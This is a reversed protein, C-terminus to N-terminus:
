KKFEQVMLRGITYTVTRSAQGVQATIKYPGNTNTQPFRHVTTVTYPVFGLSPLEAFVTRFPIDSNNGAGDSVVLIIHLDQTPDTFQGSFTVIVESSGPEDITINTTHLVTLSQDITLNPNSQVTAFNTVAGGRLNITDVALADIQANGVALDAIKASTIAANAIFATGIIAGDIFTSINAANLDDIFAFAGAGLADLTPSGVSPIGSLTGDPNVTISTGSGFTLNGSINYIEVAQGRIVGNKDLQWGQKTTQNFDTSQIVGKIMANTILADAIQASGTIVATNAVLQTAGITQALVRGGDIIVGSDGGAIVVGGGRYQAAVINNSTGFAITLDTTELLEDDEVVWYIIVPDGTFDASGADIPFITVEDGDQVIASGATWTVIDTDIDGSFDIGEFSVIRNTVGYVTTTVVFEASINLDAPDESYTDFLAFRVFRTLGSESNPIDYFITTTTDKLAVPTTIPDFGSTESVWLLVGAYDLLNIPNNFSVYLGGVTGTVLVQRKYV